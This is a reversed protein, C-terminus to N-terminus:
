FFVVASACLYMIYENMKQLNLEINLDDLDHAAIICYIKRANFNNERGRPSASM